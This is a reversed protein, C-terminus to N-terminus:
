RGKGAVSLHVGTDSAVPYGPLPDSSVVRGARTPDGLNMEEVREVKLGLRTLSAEAEELPQGELRPMRYVPRSLGSSVLLAVTEGTKLRSGPKRNQGLVTGEAGGRMSAGTEPHLGAENLKITADELPMGLVDPVSRSEAGRSLIVGVSRGQKVVQGPLPRQRVVRNEEMDEAYVFGAVELDLKRETLRDLAEGLTMGTVSPVEAEPASEVMFAVILYGAIAAVALAAAAYVGVIVFRKM